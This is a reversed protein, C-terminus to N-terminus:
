LKAQRTKERQKKKPPFILNRLIVKGICFITHPVFSLMEGRDMLLLVNHVHISRQPVTVAHNEMSSSPIHQRQRELRRDWDTCIIWEDTVTVIILSEPQPSRLNHKDAAIGNGEVEGGMLEGTWGAPAWLRLNVATM